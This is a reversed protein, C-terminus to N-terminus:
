SYKIFLILRKQLKGSKEEMDFPNKVFSSSSENLKISESDM